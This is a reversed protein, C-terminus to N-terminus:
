AGERKWVPGFDVVVARVAEESGIYVPPSTQGTLCSLWIRGTRNIADIEGPSLEWCSVSCVGNTFTSMEQVNDAGDPPLLRMNAGSFHVPSAM